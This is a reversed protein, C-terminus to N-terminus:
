NNAIEYLRRMQPLYRKYINNIQDYIAIINREKKSRSIRSTRYSDIWSRRQRLAKDISSTVSRLRRLAANSRSQSASWSNAWNRIEYYEQSWRSRTNPLPKILSALGTAMGISKPFPKPGFARTDWMVEDVVAVVLRGLHGTWDYVFTQIKLPSVNFQAGISVFPLPTSRPFYQRSPRWSQMYSPIIQGGYFNRNTLVEWFPQIVAPVWGVALNGHVLSWVFKPGALSPTGSSIDFVVEPIKMFVAGIQFPVPIRIDRDNFLDYFTLYSAKEYDTEELYQNMRGDNGTNWAWVGFSICALLGGALMTKRVHALQDDNWKPQKNQTSYAPRCIQYIQDFGQIAANLFPVTRVYMRWNRSAGINAFDSSVMRAARIAQYGSVGQNRANEFQSLRTGAEAIWAPRTLIHILRRLIRRLKTSVLGFELLINENTNVEVEVLGSYFGGQLLYARVTEDENSLMDQFAKASGALTSLVPFQWYRGAVFGAMTDRCFNKVIFAPMATIMTSVATRFAALLRVVKPFPKEALSELTAILAHDSGIYFQKRDENVIAEIWIGDAETVTEPPNITECLESQARYCLANYINTAFANRLCDVPDGIVVGSDRGTQSKGNKRDTIRLPALLPFSVNSDKYQRYESETIYRMQLYYLLMLKNLNHLKKAFKDISPDSRALSQLRQYKDDYIPNGYKFVAYEVAEKIFKPNTNSLESIIAQLGNKISPYDFSDKRESGNNIEHFSGFKWIYEMLSDVHNIHEFRIGVEPNDYIEGITQPAHWRHIFLTRWLRLKGSTLHNTSNQISSPM